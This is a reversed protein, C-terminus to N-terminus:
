VEIEGVLYPACHGAMRVRDGVLRCRLEGGRPSVQRAQLTDRGLRSAWYPVLTCHASGTVPDEDIGAHPAFYRSVFDVERGPATVILGDGDMAKVFALDPRVALVAAEDDLVAMHKRARLLSRVTVGGLAADLGDIMAVESAARAPFDLELLDGDVRVILEGAERTAFRLEDGKALGVRRLVFASALTAHGCLDVEIAPTFWRLDFHADGLRRVFATEAVNNEAAIAQLTADPLWQELLCVAAPNGAFRRATFADVQHIPIRM